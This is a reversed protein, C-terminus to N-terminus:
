RYTSLLYDVLPNDKDPHLLGKFHKSRRGRTRRRWAAADFQASPRLDEWTGAFLYHAFPDRRRPLPRENNAMFWAPDFLANPSVLQGHRNALYHALPSARESIANTKRYWEPDFYVVPRRDRPEGVLLYHILPNVKLPAVDPNTASYWNTDFYPNPNRGEKWGFACFHLLPDLGADTVDHNAVLYYNEDFLGSAALVATDPATLSALAEDVVLYPAFRDTEPASIVETPSVSVSWLWSTPAFRGTAKRALFHALPSVGTALRYTERYWAPDFNLSPRLGSPEGREAYDLLADAGPPVQAQARYWADVFYANPARGELRGFRAYHDLPDIGAEAVDANASLYWARDFLGTRLIAERNAAIRRREVYEDSELIADRVADPPTGGLLTEVWGNREPDPPERSLLDRYLATVYAEASAREM